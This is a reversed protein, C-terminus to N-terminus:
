TFTAATTTSAGLALLFLLILLVSPSTQRLDNLLRKLKICMNLFYVCRISSFLVTIQLDTSCSVSLTCKAVEARYIQTDQIPPIGCNITYRGCASFIDRDVDFFPLPLALYFHRKATTLHAQAAVQRWSQASVWVLWITCQERVNNWPGLIRRLTLSTHKAWCCIDRIDGHPKM